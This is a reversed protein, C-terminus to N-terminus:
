RLNTTLERVAADSADRLLTRSTARDIYGVEAAIADLDLRQWPAAIAAFLASSKKVAETDVV